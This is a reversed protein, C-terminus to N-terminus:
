SLLGKIEQLTLRQEKLAHIQRIRQAMDPAM